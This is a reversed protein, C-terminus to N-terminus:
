DAIKFSWEYDLTLSQGYIDRIKEGALSVTVKEGPVFEVDSRFEMYNDSVGYSIKGQVIGSLSGVVSICEPDAFSDIDMPRSFYVQIPADVPVDEMSNKPTFNIAEPGPPVPQVDQLSGYPEPSIEQSPAVYCGGDIFIPVPGHVPIPLLLPLPIGKPLPVTVGPIPPVLLNPLSPHERMELLYWIILVVVLVVLVVILGTPTKKLIVKIQARQDSQLTFTKSRGGQLDESRGDVMVSTDVVEFKYTGSAANKILWSGKSSTALPVFVGDDGQYSLRTSVGSFYAEEEVEGPSSLYMIMGISPQEVATDISSATYQLSVCGSCSAVIFFFLTLLILPQRYKLIQALNSRKSQMPADLTLFAAAFLTSENRM